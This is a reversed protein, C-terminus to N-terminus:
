LIASVEKEPFGQSYKPLEESSLSSVLQSREVWGDIKDVEERRLLERLERGV